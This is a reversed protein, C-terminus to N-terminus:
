ASVLTLNEVPMEFRESFGPEAPSGAVLRVTVIRRGGVGITGRDEVVEAVVDHNGLRFRVRSGVKFAKKPRHAARKKATRGASTKKM